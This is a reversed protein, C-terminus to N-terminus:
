VSVSKSTQRLYLILKLLSVKSVKKANASASATVWKTKSQSLQVTRKVNVKWKDADPYPRKRNSLRSM